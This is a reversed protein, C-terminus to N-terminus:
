PGCYPSEEAGNSKQLVMLGTREDICDSNFNAILLVDRKAAGQM